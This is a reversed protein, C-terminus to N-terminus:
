ELFPHHTFGDLYLLYSLTALMFTTSQHKCFIHIAFVIFMERQPKYTKLYTNLVYITFVLICSVLAQRMFDTFISKIYFVINYKRNQRQHYIFVLYFPFFYQLVDLISNQSLNCLGCEVTNRMIKYVGLKKNSILTILLIEDWGQYKISKFLSSAFLFNNSFFICIKKEKM